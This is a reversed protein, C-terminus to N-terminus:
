DELPQQSKISSMKLMSVMLALATLLLCVLLIRM